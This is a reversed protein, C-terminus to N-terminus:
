EKRPNPEEVESSFDRVVPEKLSPNGESDIMVIKHAAYRAMVAMKSMFEAQRKEDQQIYVMLSEELKDNDFFFEDGDSRKYHYIGLCPCYSIETVVKTKSDSTEAM